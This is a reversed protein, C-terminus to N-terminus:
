FDVAAYARVQYATDDNNSVFFAGPIFWASVLGMEVDETYDYILSADIEWALEKEDRDVWYWQDSLPGNVYGIQATCPNPATYTQLLPTSTAAYWYVDLIATLDERPMTSGTLKVCQVGTNIFLNALEGGRQDEFM